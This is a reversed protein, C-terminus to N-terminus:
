KMEKSAAKFFFFFAALWFLLGPIFTMLLDGNEMAHINGRALMLLFLGPMCLPLVCDRFNGQGMLMFLAWLSWIVAVTAASLKFARKNAMM